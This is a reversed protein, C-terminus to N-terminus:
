HKTRGYVIGNWWDSVGSPIQNGDIVDWLFQGTTAAQGTPLGFVYGANEIAHSMWKDSAGTGKVLGEIDKGSKGLNQILSVAPTAQYDRGTVASNVVDRLVPIGSFMGVGIEKAAWEAYGEADDDKKPHLAGHLLSPIVFYFLSRALVMSFDRAAKPTDGQRISDPISAATRAIDRQRNYFHNWFSYFMTFLKQFENGRQIASLDKVGGGGHANRVAKDAYYIANEESMGEGGKEEPTMAKLYAGMWTPMASAMDLMSIGYYAFRRVDNMGRAAAGQPGQAAHLELDRLGDRVDRDVTNMRNRMDASREFIFDRAGAMKEPTGYFAKTGKVMWDAGIEGVSNSAATAGHTLMTTLRYGLGVMTTATRVSHAMNDWFALGKEDYTKDNAIAQLWPRFQKYYERGLASEIAARIRGDGLFRDADIVAERYALDHTVQQLHRPLVDLSLYIPRAYNESREITHGKPTSARTYSNEFLKDGSKESRVDVDHSRLPDYVVPYYGGKLTGNALQTDEGEVKPPAVGSLRKEMAEIKPWLSEVTDGLGNIFDIDGKSLHRNLVTMVDDASWKEGQLMKGFNSPNRLQAGMALIESKLMSSPKGTKSDLLEPIEYRNLYDKKFQDDTAKYVERLRSTVDTNMDSEKGQAEAIRRFVVRNLVGNTNHGDLWDLVQEMKLMSADLSRLKSGAALYKANVKDLGKGGVGPNRADPVARQPLNAMADTAENVVATFDRMDKSDLLRQKLRGLHEISKIADTLGRLAEISMDKYHLTQAEDLLRPDIAPDYGKARQADVWDALSARKDIARLSTGQRLDFRGLLADIQALYDNSLAERTSNRGFRKLYNLTKDVEEVAKYAAKAAYNNILQNRKEMAATAIDNAGRAKEAAKAARVEAAAFQLPKLNRVKLRAVMDEAYQRAASALIKPAGTAKQLANAETAIFKARAENHIAQDAARSMAQPDALDGYRELMRQDTMGAIKEKSNEEAILAEILKRGSSYGFMDAALDPDIGDKGLVGFKGFKSELDEIPVHADGSGSVNDLIRQVGDIDLRHPGDVKNGNIEGTRIFTRARNVPENMVEDTVEKRIASRKAAADRQMGRLVKSKANSAWQMDRLSRSELNTIADQTAQVGLDHYAKFEDPAMGAAEPTKFLPEFNRAAEAEKIQETTALMRDFVGRIDPSLEVGLSKVSQYVNLLWARFRSFVGQMNISPAKGEYLYAEFGRAFQEHANRQQEIDRSNWDALDKVGLWKLTTAMDEKVQDSADERQAMKNMTELFFHGSEHLFTSLDAAKLLAITSTEPNFSGRNGQYLPFGEQIKAKMEDTIPISQVTNAETEAKLDAAARAEPSLESFEGLDKVGAAEYMAQRDRPKGFSMEVPEIEGKGGVAESAKKALMPMIRDYAGAMGTDDISINDGKIVGSQNPDSIIQKAMAKGIADSLSNEKEHTNVRESGGRKGIIHVGEPTKEWHIEDVNSRLAGEYRDVQMKGTTWAIRDYGEKAAMLMLRKFQLEQWTTKFPIDTVHSSGLDHEQEVLADYAASANVVDTDARVARGTLQDIVGEPTDHGGGVRIPAGGHGGQEKPEVQAHYMVRTRGESDKPSIDKEIYYKFDGHADEGVPTLEYSGGSEIGNAMTRKTVKTLSPDAKAKEWGEKFMDAYLKQARDRVEASKAYALSKDIRVQKLTQVDVKGYGYDNPIQKRADELSVGSKVLKDIAATRKTRAQQHADSQMEQIFLVKEHKGNIKEYYDSIRAHMMTSWDKFHQRVNEIPTDGLHTILERYNAGGEEKYESFQTDGIPARNDREEDYNRRFDEERWRREDEGFAEVANEAEEATDYEGLHEKEDYGNETERSVTFKDDFPSEEVRFKVPSGDIIYERTLHNLEPQTHKFGGVAPAPPRDPFMLRQGEGETTEGGRRTIKDQRETWSEALHNHIQKLAAEKSAYVKDNLPEGDKYISWKMPFKDAGAATSENRRGVIQVKESEGNGIDVTKEYVEPTETEKEDSYDFEMEPYEDDEEREGEETRQAERVQYPNQDIFDLIDQKTLKVKDGVKTKLDELEGLKTELQAKHLALDTKDDAAEKPYQGAEKAIRRELADINVRHKDIAEKAADLNDQHINGANKLYDELGSFKLEDAKFGGAKVMSRVQNLYDEPTGSGNLKQELHRQMKSYFGLDLLHEGDEGKQHFQSDGLAEAVINRPYREAFMEPTIGEKAAGVTDFNVHLAAYMKNVDPTFRNAANLQAMYKDQLAQKSAAWVDDGESQEIIKDVQAKLDENAGQMFHTAEAKSMGLPDTKLHDLLPGALDTGAINTAFEATPIKIDNGTPASTKLQEAVSPSAAALKDIDVGSQALAKPDIYLNEVPGDKTADAIFQSYSETSRARLKSATALDNLNNIVEAQPGAAAKAKATEALHNGIASYIEPNLAHMGAGFAAFFAGSDIAKALTPATAAAQEPYGSKELIKQNVLDTGASQVAGFGFHKAASMVLSKVLPQIGQDTVLSGGALGVLSLAGGTVGGIVDATKPDVGAKVEAHQAAAGESGAMAPVVLAPDALAAISYSLGQAAMAPWTKLEPAADYMKNAFADIQDHAIKGAPTATPDVAFPPAPVNNLGKLAGAGAHLAANEIGSGIDSLVGPTSNVTSETDRLNQIDDSSLKFKNPDALHAATVPHQDAIGAAPVFTAAAQKQAIKPDARV